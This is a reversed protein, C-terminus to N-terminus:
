RQRRRRCALAALGTGVLLLTSPEPVPVQEPPDPPTYPPVYPPDYPPTYPPDVPPDTPPNTPNGPGPPNGGNGGPPPTGGEPPSSSSSPSGPNGPNKAGPEGGGTVPVSPGGQVGDPEFGGDSPGATIYALRQVGGLIEYPHDIEYLQDVFEFGGDSPGTTIYALQQVGGLIEYPHDIEYLQDVFAIVSVAGHDPVWDNYTLINSGLLASVTSFAEFKGGYREAVDNTNPQVVRHAEKWAQNSDYVYNLKLEDAHAPVSLALVALALTAGLPAEAHRLIHAQMTM